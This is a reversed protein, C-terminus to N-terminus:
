VHAEKEIHHTSGYSTGGITSVFEDLIKHDLHEHHITIIPHMANPIQAECAAEVVVNDLEDLLM